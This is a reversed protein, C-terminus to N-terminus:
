WVQKPQDLSIIPVSFRQQTIWVIIDCIENPDIWNDTSSDNYKKIGGVIIHSTKFRYTNLCLSKNRLDLKSLKYIETGLNDYEHTSGINFVDCFKLNQNCVDLLKSQAYPEIYSANIFTNHEKFVKSIDEINNLNINSLDYGLSKSIFTADPFKQKVASAITGLRDPNGTCIVKRKQFLKQRFNDM